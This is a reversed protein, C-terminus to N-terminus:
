VKHRVNKRSTPFVRRPEPDCQSSLRQRDKRRRARARTKVLVKRTRGSAFNYVTSICARLKEAERPATEHVRHLLDAAEKHGFDTAPFTGYVPVLHRKLLREDEAWSRKVKRAYADLYHQVLDEV